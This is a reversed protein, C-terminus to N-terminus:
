QNKPCNFKPSICCFGWAFVAKTSPTCQTLMSCEFSKIRINKHQNKLNGNNSVTKMYSIVFQCLQMCEFHSYLFFRSFDVYCFCSIFQYKQGFILNVRIWRIFVFCFLFILIFALTIQEYPEISLIDISVFTYETDFLRYIRYFTPPSLSVFFVGLSSICLSVFSFLPVHCVETNCLCHAFACLVCISRSAM